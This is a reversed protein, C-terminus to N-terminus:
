AAVADPVVLVMPKPMIAWFEMARPEASRNLYHKKLMKLSQDHGMQEATDTGNKFGYYHYSAFTHRMVDPSWKVGAKETLERRTWRSWHVHIKGDKKPARKLWALAPAYTITTDEKKGDLHIVTSKVQHSLRVNRAGMKGHVEVDGADLHIDTPLIRGMESKKDPRVGCFLGLALYPLMQPYHEQATEMLKQCEEITFIRPPAKRQERDERVSKVRNEKIPHEACTGSEVCYTFFHVLRGRITNRYSVAWPKSSLFRKIQESTIESVNTEAGIYTKFHGLVVKGTGIFGSTIKLRKMEEVWNDGAKELSLRATTPKQALFLHVCELLTGRDGLEKKAQKDEETFEILDNGKVKANFKDWCEQPSDGYIRGQGNARADMVYCKKGNKETLKPKM